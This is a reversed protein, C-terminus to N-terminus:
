KRELRYGDRARVRYKGGNVEVRIRHFVGDRRDGPAPYKLLYQHRLDELIENFIEELKGSNETFFARGGSTGALQKLIRQLESSKVARGQGIAYITADSSEARAIAASLPAHSSQDDGDSFLVVSHRGTRRGALELSRIIVDYLATGGWPRMRDIARVRAEHDTGRPAVTFINDNFSLVTAKDNPALGALFTKAATRVHPLAEEMSSSVDIATVLELPIDESAFSTIPQPRDDELVRFDSQTLRPVFRGDNSTVVATVQIVDVDVAEEHSLGRTAVNQVLREGNKLTATARIQHTVVREGADWDCEFPPRMLSCVVHADAFFTLQTVTNTASPPDIMAVLRTPGNVFSGETPAAIRLAPAPAQASATVWLAALVPAVVMSVFRRPAAM